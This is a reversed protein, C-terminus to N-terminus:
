RFTNLAQVSTATSSIETPVPKLADSVSRVLDDSNTTQEYIDHEVLEIILPSIINLNHVINNKNQKIKGRRQKTM